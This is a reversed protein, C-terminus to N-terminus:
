GRVALTLAILMVVVVIAWFVVQYAAGVQGHPGEYM